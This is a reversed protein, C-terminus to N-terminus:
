QSPHADRKFKWESSPRRNKSQERRPIWACNSPEYNGNNNIREITLGQRYSPGMDANFNRFDSRWRECLRIGRGGYNPYADSNENECRDIMGKWVQHLPHGTMGHVTERQVTEERGLCGCSRSTGARLSRGDVMRVTGCDCRCEWHSGSAHRVVSYRKFKKGSIDILQPM